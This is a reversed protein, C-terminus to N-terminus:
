VSLTNRNRKEDFFFRRQKPMPFPEPPLLHKGRSGAIIARLAAARCETRDDLGKTSRIKRLREIRHKAWPMPRRATTERDVGPNLNDLRRGGAAPKTPAQGYPCAYSYRAPGSEMCGLGCARAPHLCRRFNFGAGAHRSPAAADGPRCEAPDGIGTCGESRLKSMVRHAGWPMPIQVATGFACASEIVRVGAGRFSVYGRRALAGDPASRVALPHLFTVIARFGAFGGQM